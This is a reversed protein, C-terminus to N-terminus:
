SVLTQEPRRGQSLRLDRPGPWSLREAALYIVKGSDPDRVKVYESRVEGVYGSRETDSLLKSVVGVARSADLVHLM